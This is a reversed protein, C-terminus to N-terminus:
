QWSRLPSGSRTRRRVRWAPDCGDCLLRVSTAVTCTRVVLEALWPPYESDAKYVPDGGETADVAATRWAGAYTPGGDVGRASPGCAGKMIGIPITDGEETSIEVVEAAKAACLRPRHARHRALLQVAAARATRM